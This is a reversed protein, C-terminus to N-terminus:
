LEDGREAYFLHWAREFDAEPILIRAPRNLDGDDETEPDVWEQKAAIGNKELMVLLLEANVVPGTYFVKM